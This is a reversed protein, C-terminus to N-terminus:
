IYTPIDQIMDQNMYQSIIRPYYGPIVDQSIIRPYYGPIVDQSLIRPYYELVGKM